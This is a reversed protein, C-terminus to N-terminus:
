LSPDSGSPRNPLQNRFILFVGLLIILVPWFRRVLHWDVYFWGLERALQLFGFLILLSGVLLRAPSPNMLSSLNFPELFFPPM